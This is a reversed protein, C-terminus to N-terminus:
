KKARTKKPAAKPAPPPTPEPTPEVRVAAFGARKYLAHRSEYSDGDPVSYEAGSPHRYITPM